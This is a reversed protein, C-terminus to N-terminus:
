KYKEKIRNSIIETLVEKYDTMNKKDKRLSIFVTFPLKETRKKPKEIEKNEVYM